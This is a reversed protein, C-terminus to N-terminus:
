RSGYFPIEIFKEDILRMLTLDAESDRAPEYFVGSRDIGLLECQRVVSLGPQDPVVMERRRAVSM